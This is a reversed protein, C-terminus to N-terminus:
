CCQLASKTRSLMPLSQFGKEQCEQHASRWESQTRCRCSYAQRSIAPRAAHRYYRAAFIIGGVVLAINGNANFGHDRDGPRSSSLDAFAALLDSVLLTTPFTRFSLAFGIEHKVLPRPLGVRRTIEARAIWQPEHTCPVMHVINPKGVDELARLYRQAHRLWLASARHM